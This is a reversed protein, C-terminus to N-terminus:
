SILEQAEDPGAGATAGVRRPERVGTLTLSPVPLFAITALLLTLCVIVFAGTLSTSLSLLGVVVAPLGSGAYFALYLAASVEARRTPPTLLDTERNAGWYGLGHGAGIVVAATALMALLLDEGLGPLNTSLLLTTGLALLALGITQAARLRLWPAVVQSAASVLLVSGVVLGTLLTGAGPIRSVTMAPLIALVIGVAAWGLFGTAASVTFSERMSHPIAPRTPRWRQRTLPRHTPLRLVLASILALVALMVLYPAALGGTVEAVAGAGAPGVGTGLVFSITALTSGLSPRHQPSAEVMLAIGGGTGLGLGIGLLVRGAFLAPVGAPDAAFLLTGLVAFGLGAVLVPRRGFSDAASGFLLLAPLATAAFTAHLLTMTLDSMAHVQQHAPYLPSAMNAAASLAAIAAAGVRLQRPSGPAGARETM